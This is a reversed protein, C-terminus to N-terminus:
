HVRPYVRIALVKERAVWQIVSCNVCRMVDYRPHGMRRPISTELRLFGACGSCALREIENPQAECDPIM